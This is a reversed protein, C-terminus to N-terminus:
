SKKPKLDQRFVTKPESQNLLLPRWIRAFLKSHDIKKIEIEISISSIRSGVEPLPPKFLIIFYFIFYVLSFGIQNRPVRKYLAVPSSAAM